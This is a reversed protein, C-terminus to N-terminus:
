NFNIIITLKMGKQLKSIDVTSKPISQIVQKSNDPKVEIIKNGKVIKITLGLAKSTRVAKSSATRASQILITEELDKKGKNYVM